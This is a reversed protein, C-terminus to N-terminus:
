TIDTLDFLVNSNGGDISDWTRVQEDEEKSWDVKRLAMGNSRKRVIELRYM